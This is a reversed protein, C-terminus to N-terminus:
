QETGGNGGVPTEYVLSSGTAGIYSVVSLPFDTTYQIQPQNNPQYNKLEEKYLELPDKKAEAMAMKWGNQFGERYSELQGKIIENTM